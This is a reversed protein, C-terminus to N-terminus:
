NQRIRSDPESIDRVKWRQEDIESQSIDASDLSRNVLRIKEQQIWQVYQSSDAVYETYQICGREIPALRSVTEISDRTIYRTTLVERSQGIRHVRDVAQAEAM